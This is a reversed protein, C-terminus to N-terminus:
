RVAAVAPAIWRQAYSRVYKPSRRPEPDSMFSRWTRLMLEVLGALETDNYGAAAWDVPACDVISRVLARSSEEVFVTRDNGHSRTLLLTLEPRHALQEYTYALTEVVADAPVTKSRLRTALEELYRDIRPRVAAVLMLRSSPFYRYLTPVTISLRDAVKGASPAVEPHSRLLARAAKLICAVAEEDDVPGNGGWGRRAM